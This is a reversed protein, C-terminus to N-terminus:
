DFLHKSNYRDGIVCCSSKFWSLNQENSLDEYPWKSKIGFAQTTFAFGGPVSWILYVKGNQDAFIDNEYVDVGFMDLVGTFQCISYPDVENHQLLNNGTHNIILASNEQVNHVVGYGYVWDETDLSIAKYKIPKM